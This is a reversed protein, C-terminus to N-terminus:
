MCLCLCKSDALRYAPPGQAHGCLKGLGFALVLYIGACWTVSAYSGVRVHNVWGYMMPQYKCVIFTLYVSLVLQAVSAWKNSNVCVSVFTMLVRLVFTQFEVRRAHLVHVCMEPMYGLSHWKCLTTHLTSLAVLSLHAAALLRAGVWGAVVWGTHMIALQNRTMFNLEMEGASFAGAAVLFVLLSIVAVGAHIM